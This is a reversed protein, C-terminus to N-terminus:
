KLLYPSTVSETIIVFLSEPLGRPKPKTVNASEATASSTKAWSCVMSPLTTVEQKSCTPEFMTATCM